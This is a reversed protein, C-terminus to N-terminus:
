TRNLQLVVSYTINGSQGTVGAVIREPVVTNDLTAVGTLQVGNLVSNQGACSAYDFQVKYLNYTANILSASGNLVCGSAADQSFLTGDTGVTLVANNAANTFNGSLTTLSSARDYLGDFTLDLTGTSSNGSDTKFTTTASITKRAQITASITGTGHHSGDAFTFGVPVIGDFNATLSTGTVVTTGVYQVGDGRLFHFNGSEDVLGTVQLGSVSDTGRWIGGPTANSTSGGGGGGSTGSGTTSGGLTSGGGCSALLSAVGAAAFTKLRKFEMHAEFEM